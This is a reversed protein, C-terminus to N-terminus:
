LGSHGSRRYFGPDEGAVKVYTWFCRRSCFVREQMISCAGIGM